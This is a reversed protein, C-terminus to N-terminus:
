KVEVGTKNWYLGPVFITVAAKSKEEMLWEGILKTSTNNELFLRGQLIEERARPILVLKKFDEPSLGYLIESGRKFDESGLDIKNIKQEVIVVLDNGLERDLEESILENEIISELVARKIENKSENSNLIDLDKQNLKLESQYFHIAVGYNKSLEAFTIFHGNVKAVPWYGMVVLIVITLVIVSIGWYIIKKYNM